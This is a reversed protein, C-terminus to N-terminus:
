QNEGNSYKQKILSNVPDDENDSDGENEPEQAASPKTQQSAWYGGKSLAEIQQEKGEVIEWVKDFGENAQLKAFIPALEEVLEDDYVAAKLKEKVATLDNEVVTEAKAKFGNLLKDLMSM